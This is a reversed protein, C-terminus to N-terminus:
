FVLCPGLRKFTVIIAQDTVQVGYKDGPSFGGQNAYFAVRGSEAWLNCPRSTPTPELTIEADGMPPFSIHLLDGLHVVRGTRSLFAEIVKRPVYCRGDEGVSAVPLAAQPPRPARRPKSLTASFASPNSRQRPRPINVEFDHAFGADADPAYVFVLIGAPMQGKGETIRPVQVPYLGEGTGDGYYPMEGGYFLDRLFEGLSVVSFRLDTRYARLDKAIEGSSFPQVNAVKYNVWARVAQPWDQADRLAEPLTMATFTPPKNM